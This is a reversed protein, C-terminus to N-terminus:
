LISKAADYGIQVIDKLKYLDFTTYDGVDPRILTIHKDSQALTFDEIRRIMIDISRGLIESSVSM